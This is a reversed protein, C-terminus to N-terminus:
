RWEIRYVEAAVTEADSTHFDFQHPVDLEAAFAATVRGGRDAAFSEVFARSGANHISYSVPALESAAALFARDAHERGEQAGFPPNMLVVDASASGFPPRTADGLVWAVATPPDLLDANERATALATRDRDVAVVRAPRAFAAGLALMGTGTGLDVVVGDLDGRDAAVQVVHAAVDAATVYQELEVRPEDFGRVSQLRRELERRRM